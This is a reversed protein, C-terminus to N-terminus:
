GVVSVSWYWIYKIPTTFFVTCMSPKEFIFNVFHAFNPTFIDYVSLKEIIFFIAFILLISFIHCFYLKYCSAAFHSSLQALWIYYLCRM